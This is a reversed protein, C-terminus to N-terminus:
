QIQVIASAADARSQELALYEADTLSTPQGLAKERIHRMVKWDTSDLIFRQEANVIEQAKKAEEATVYSSEHAKVVNDNFDFYHTKTRLGENEEDTIPVVTVSDPTNPEYNSIGTIQGNEICVYYM